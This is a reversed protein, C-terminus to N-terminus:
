GRNMFSSRAAKMCAPIRNLREAALTGFPRWTVCLRNPLGATWRDREHAYSELLGPGAWGALVASLKWALNHADQIGTNMGFGGAPPM